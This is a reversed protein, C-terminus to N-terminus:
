LVKPQIYNQPEVLPIGNAHRRLQASAEYVIRRAEQLSGIPRHEALSHWPTFSLNEGFEAQGPANIDQPPLTITAAPIPVSLTEDWRVTAQDLPMAVPDTQMQLLFQFKVERKALHEKLDDHLYSPNRNPDPITSLTRDPGVPSLKYKIYRGMGFESPAGSWYNIALLSPVNQAMKDLIAATRPHDHLYLSYDHNQVGACTFECMEKANDVFFVDFNQMVFDQTPAYSELLKPGEVGFLKIGVGVTTRQDPIGPLTDSSFRLWADFRTHSFVGVRLEPPLDPSIEFIGYACGHPKLFVARRVPTQGAVMRSRQTVDVFLRKLETIPDSSCACPKVGLREHSM